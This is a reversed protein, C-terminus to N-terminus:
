QGSGRLRKAALDAEIDQVRICHLCDVDGAAGTVFLDNVFRGCVTERKCLNGEWRTARNSAWLHMKRM